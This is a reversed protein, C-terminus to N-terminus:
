VVLHGSHYEVESRDTKLVLVNGLTGPLSTKRKIKRVLDMSREARSAKCGVALLVGGVGGGEAGM